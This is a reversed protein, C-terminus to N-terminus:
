SEKQPPRRPRPSLRTSIRPKRSAMRPTHGAAAQFEPSKRHSNNTRRREHGPCISRPKRVQIGAQRRLLRASQRLGEHPHLRGDKSIRADNAEQQGTRRAKRAMPIASAPRLNERYQSLFHRVLAWAYQKRRVSVKEAFHGAIRSVEMVAVHDGFMRM